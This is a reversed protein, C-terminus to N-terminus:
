KKDIGEGRPLVLPSSSIVSCHANLRLAAHVRKSCMEGAYIVAVKQRRPHPLLRHKIRFCCPQAISFVAFAQKSVVRIYGIARKIASPGRRLVVATTDRSELACLREGVSSCM